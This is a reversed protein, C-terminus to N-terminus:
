YGSSRGVAESDSGRVAHVRVMSQVPYEEGATATATLSFTYCHMFELGLVTGHRERQIQGNM